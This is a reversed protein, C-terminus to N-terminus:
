QFIWRSFLFGAMSLSLPLDQPSPSTTVSVQFYNSFVLKLSVKRSSQHFYKTLKKWKQWKRENTTIQKKSHTWQYNYLNKGSQLRQSDSFVYYWNSFINWNKRSMPAWLWSAWVKEKICVFLCFCVPFFSFYLILMDTTGRLNVHLTSSSTMTIFLFSFLLKSHTLLGLLQSLFNCFPSTIKYRSPSFSM